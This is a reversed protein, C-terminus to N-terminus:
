VSQDRWTVGVSVDSTVANSGPLFWGFDRRTRRLLNPAPLGGQTVRRTGLNVTVPGTSGAIEVEWGETTHEFTGDGAFVLVADYVPATGAIVLTDAGSITDTNEAGGERWYSWDGVLPVNMLRTDRPQSISFPDLATVTLFRSTGDPMDLELLTRPRTLLALFTDTNAVLQQSPDPEVLVGLPGTRTMRMNLNLFRPRALLDGSVLGGPRGGVQLIDGAIGPYGLVESWDEVMLATSNISTGGTIGSGSLVGGLHLDNCEAM